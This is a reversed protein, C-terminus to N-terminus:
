GSREQRPLVHEGHFDIVRQQNALTGDSEAVADKRRHAAPDVSPRRYQLSEPVIGPWAAVAGSSAASGPPTRTAPGMHPRSAARHLLRHRGHDSTLVHALAM